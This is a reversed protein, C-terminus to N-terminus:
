ASVPRAANSQNWSWESSAALLPFAKLLVEDMNNM